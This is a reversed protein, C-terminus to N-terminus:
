SDTTAVARQVAPQFKGITVGNSLSSALGALKILLIIFVGGAVGLQFASTWSLSFDAVVNLTAFFRIQFIALLTTFILILGYNICQGIWIAAFQRTPPFIAFAIFIPGLMLLIILFVKALLLYAAIVVITLIATLLIVLSILGAIFSAEIGEAENWGDVILNRYFSLLTDLDTAILNKSYAAGSTDVVGLIVMIEDPLNNVFPIVVNLYFDLNLAVGLAVAWFLVRQVFEFGIEGLSSSDKLYGITILLVYLTFCALIVPNLINMIATAQSLPDNIVNTDFFTYLQTVINLPIPPM